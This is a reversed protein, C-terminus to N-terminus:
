MRSYCVGLRPTVDRSPDRPLSCFFDQSSVPSSRIVVLDFYLLLLCLMYLIKCSISFTCLFEILLFYFPSSYDFFSFDNM